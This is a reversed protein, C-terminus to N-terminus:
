ILSQQAGTKSMRFVIWRAWTAWTSRLFDLCSKKNLSINPFTRPSAFLAKGENRVQVTCLPWRVLVDPQVLMRQDALHVTSLMDTYTWSVRGFLHNAGAWKWPCGIAVMLGWTEISKRDGVIHYGATDPVVELPWWPWWTVMEHSRGMEPGALGCIVTLLRCAQASHRRKEVWPGVGPGDGAEAFLPEQPREMIHEPVQFPDFPFPWYTQTPFSRVDGLWGAIPSKM